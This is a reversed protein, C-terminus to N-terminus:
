VGRTFDPHSQYEKQLCDYCLSHSNVYNEGIASGCSSCRASDKEVQYKKNQEAIEELRETQDGGPQDSGWGMDFNPKFRVM